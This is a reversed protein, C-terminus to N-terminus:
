GMGRTNGRRVHWEDNFESRRIAEERDEEGSSESLPESSNKARNMNAILRNAFEDLTMEPKNRRVLIEERNGRGDIRICEMRRDKREGVEGSGHRIETELHSISQMARIYLHELLARAWERDDWDICDYRLIRLMNMLAIKDGRDRTKSFHKCLMVTRSDVLKLYECEDCYERFCGMARDKNPGRDEVVGRAYPLVLDYLAATPIEDADGHHSHKEAEEIGQLAVERGELISLIIEKLIM